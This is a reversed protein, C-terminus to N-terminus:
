KSLFILVEESLAEPNDGPIEHGAHAIEKLVCHPIMNKIKQATDTTFLDSESGRLLLVPCLIEDLYGWLWQPSNMNTQRLAPDYKFIYQGEENMKIAYRIQHKLFNDSCFRKLNNFYEYVEDVSNFHGPESQMEKRLRLSGETALEPGIDIIILKNVHDPHMAAYLIANIGGLSHGILIFSTINLQQIVRELDSVYDRSGYCSAWDSEGHGRQDIAICHFEQHLSSALLDWYHANGCLGHLLIVVPAPANQWELYNLHLGNIKVFKEIAQSM